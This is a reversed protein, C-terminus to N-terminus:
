AATAEVQSGSRCAWPSCGDPDGEEALQADHVEDLVSGQQWEVPRIRDIPAQDLPLRSIHLFRQHRMGPGVRYARDFEVADTWSAPDEGRMRRWAANGHFPCMKCASKVVPREPTMWGRSKLFAECQTRSMDLELLPHRSKSYRTDARDSVRTIEDTSFGVWTEAWLGAPPQGVRELVGEGDCVSCPGIVFEGLKARWPAVREGTARCFRCPRPEGAKAGLLLRTQRLIPNLKYLQTCRRKQMGLDRKRYPAGWRIVVLGSNDCLVCDEPLATTEDAATITAGETWAEIFTHIWAEDQRAENWGCGCPGYGAPDRTEYWDGATYAPINRMKNANLADAALDGESVRHLPIGAPKLVERELRDLHEYVADPEAGTDAFIAGDLQGLTGEAALLALTTSQIGAGLSLLRLTPETESM